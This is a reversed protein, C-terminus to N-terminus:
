QRQAAMCALQEMPAAFRGTECCTPMSEMCAAEIVSSIHPATLTQLSSTTVVVPAAGVCIVSQWTDSQVSPGQEFDQLEPVCLVIRTIMSAGDFYPAAQGGSSIVFFHLSKGHGMPNEDDEFHVLTQPPRTCVLNWLTARSGPLPPLGHSASSSVCGQLVSDQSPSPTSPPQVCNEGQEWAHPPPKLSLFFGTTCGM